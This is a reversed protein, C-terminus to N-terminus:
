FLTRKDHRSEKDIEIQFLNEIFAKISTVKTGNVRLTRM